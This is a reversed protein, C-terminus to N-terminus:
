LILNQWEVAGKASYNKSANLYQVTFPQSTSLDGSCGHAITVNTQTENQSSFNRISKSDPIAKPKM